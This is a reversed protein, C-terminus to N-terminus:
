RAEYPQGQQIKKLEDRGEQRRLEWDEQTMCVRKPMRSGLVAEKKCVMDGAKPKDSKAAPPTAATSAPAEAAPPAAAFLMAALVLSIM